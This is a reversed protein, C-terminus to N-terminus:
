LALLADLKEYGERVGHEMGSAVLGDRMEFSELLSTSTEVKKVAARAM